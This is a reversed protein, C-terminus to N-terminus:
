YGSVFHLCLRIVSFPASFLNGTDVLLSGILSCIVMPFKRYVQALLKIHQEKFVKVKVPHFAQPPFLDRVESKTIEHLFEFVLSALTQTRHQLNVAPCRRCLATRHTSM